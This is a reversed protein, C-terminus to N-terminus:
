LARTAQALPGLLAACDRALDLDCAQRQVFEAKADFRALDLLSEILSKMRLAAQSCDALAKRYDETSQEHLLAGQAHALILSVPTRLEHSADATVQNQREYDDAGGDLGRIRDDRADRATLMLVPTTKSKQLRAPVEWGDLKPLMADLLKQTAGHLDKRAGRDLKVFRSRPPCLM